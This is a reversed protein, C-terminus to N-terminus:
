YKSINEPIFIKNIEEKIIDIYTKDFNFPRNIVLFLKDNACYIFLTFVRFYPYVSQTLLPFTGKVKGINTCNIVAQTDQNPFKVKPIFALTKPDIITHCSVVQRVDDNTKKAENLQTMCHKLDEMLNSQGVLKAYMIGVNCYLKNNKYEETSYPSNRLDTPISIWIPTEKSLNNYRRAARSAAAMIMAQVTIGNERNFKSIPKYDFIIHPSVHNFPPKMKPLLPLYPIENWIKPSKYFSEDLNKFRELGGFNTLKEENKELSEGNIIRRIYDMITFVTRGDSISHNISLTIKTKNSKKLQCVKFSILAQVDKDDKEQIVEYPIVM